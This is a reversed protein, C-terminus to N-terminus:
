HPFPSIPRKFKSIYGYLLGRCGQISLVHGHVHTTPGLVGTRVLHTTIITSTPEYPLDKVGLKTPLVVDITSVRSLEKPRRNLCEPPSWRYMCYTKLDGVLRPPRHRRYVEPGRVPCFLHHRGRVYTTPGRVGTRVPLTTVIVTVYVRLLDRVETRVSHTTTEISTPEYPLDTSSRRRDHLRTIVGEYEQGPLSVTITTVM